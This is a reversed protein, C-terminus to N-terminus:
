RGRMTRALTNVQLTVTGLTIFEFLLTWRVRFRLTSGSVMILLTTLFCHIIAPHMPNSRVPLPPLGLIIVEHEVVAGITGTASPTPALLTNTILKNM